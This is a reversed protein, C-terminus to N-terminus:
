HKPQGQGNSSSNAPQGKSSGAKGKGDNAKGQGADKLRAAVATTSQDAEAVLGKLEHSVASIKALLARERATNVTLLAETDTGGTRRLDRLGVAQKTRYDQLLQRAIDARSGRGELKLM